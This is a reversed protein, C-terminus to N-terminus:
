AGILGRLQNHIAPYLAGFGLYIPKSDNKAIGWALAAAGVATASSVGMVGSPMWRNAALGMADGGTIWACERLARGSAGRMIGTAAKRSRRRAFAYTSRRVRRTRRKLGRYARRATKRRQGARTSRRRAM